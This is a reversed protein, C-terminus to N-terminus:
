LKNFFINLKINNKSYIASSDHILADMSLLTKTTMTFVKKDINASSTATM